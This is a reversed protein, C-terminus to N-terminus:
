SVEDELRFMYFKTIDGHKLLLKLFDNLLEFREADGRLHYRNYYNNGKEKVYLDYKM